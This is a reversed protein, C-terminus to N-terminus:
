RVPRLKAAATRYHRRTLRVDDHQLLEAAEEDSGALGAAMKRMDRLFMAEIDRAFEDDNAIKSKIAAQLRAQDWRDRLMGYSVARGTPTVLLMLCDTKIARRRELLGPLVTSLSLDYDADKGTKSATLRLVDNRPLLITRCDTLRMSTASALDMCDRLVEDGEAYVAEFLPDTVTFRRPKEKNKWRSKEMGAAPFPLDCLGELRSWNWVISLLAMERNGQTKAGRQKLYGKLEPLGVEHWLAPGFVPRLRRLHKAYSRRTEANEYLPLAEKEWRDFAEELTGAIRPQRHHIEEWQKLAEDWDKGLPVDPEGDPRRDYFYYTVVKGGARKRTHSRLRPYKGTM